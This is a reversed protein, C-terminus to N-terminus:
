RRPIAFTLRTLEDRIGKFSVNIKSLSAADYPGPFPTDTLSEKLESRADKLKGFELVHLKCRCQQLANELSHIDNSLAREAGNLALQQEKTLKKASQCNTAEQQLFRLAAQVSRVHELLLNTDSQKSSASRTYLFNILIAVALTALANLVNGVDVQPNFHLSKLEPLLWGIIIGAAFCLVMLVITM